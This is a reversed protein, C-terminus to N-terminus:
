QPAQRRRSRGGRWHGRIRGRHTRRRHCSCTRPNHNKLVKEWVQRLGCTVVVACTHPEKAVRGLLQIMEPYMHIQAAVGDCVTDFIDAFQEYMLTAQRFAAYSYGQSTFLGKLLAV